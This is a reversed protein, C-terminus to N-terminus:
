YPLIYANGSGECSVALYRVAPDTYFTAYGPKKCGADMPTTVSSVVSYDSAVTTITYTNDNYGTTLYLWNAGDKRIDLGVAGDGVQVTGKVTPAADTASWDVLTLTKSGYDTIGCHGELCRVRRLDTGIGTAVQSKTVLATVPNWQQVWWLDGQDTIAILTKGAYDPAWASILSGKIDPDDGPNWIQGDYKWGPDGFPTANEASKLSGVLGLSYSTILIHKPDADPLMVMDTINGLGNIGITMGGWSSSAADYLKFWCSKPGCGVLTTVKGIGRTGKPLDSLFGTYCALLPESWLKVGTAANIIAVNSDSSDTGCVLLIKEVNSLSWLNQTLSLGEAKPVTPIPSKFPAKPECKGDKCDENQQCVDCAEGGKGCWDHDLGVECGTMTDCCGKCNDPGCLECKGNENCSEYKKCEGCVLQGGCGDDAEGCEM